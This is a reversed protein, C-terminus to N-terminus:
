ASFLALSIYCYYLHVLVKHFPLLSFDFIFVIPPLIIVYVMFHACSLVFPILVLYHQQLQKAEREPATYSTTTTSISPKKYAQARLGITQYDAQTHTHGRECGEKGTCKCLDNHAWCCNVRLSWDCSQSKQSGVLYVCWRPATSSSGGGGESNFNCFLLALTPESACDSVSEGRQLHLVAQDKIGSHRLTPTNFTNQPSTRRM